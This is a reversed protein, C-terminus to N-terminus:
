IPVPVWFTCDEETELPESRRPLALEEGGSMPPAPAVAPATVAGM